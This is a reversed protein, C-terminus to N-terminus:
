GVVRGKNLVERTLDRVFVTAMDDWSSAVDEWEDFDVDLEAAYVQGVWQHGSREDKSMQKLVYVLSDAEDDGYGTVSVAWRQGDVGPGWTYVAWMRGALVYRHHTLGLMVTTGVTEWIYVNSVM